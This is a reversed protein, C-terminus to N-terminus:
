RKVTARGAGVLVLSAVVVRDWVSVCLKVASKQKREVSAPIPPPVPTDPPALALIKNALSRMNQLTKHYEDRLKGYAKRDIITFGADDQTRQLKPWHLEHIKYHARLAGLLHECLISDTCPVTQAAQEALALIEEAQMKRLQQLRDADCPNRRREEQDRLHTYFRIEESSFEYKFAIENAKADNGDKLARIIRERAGDLM